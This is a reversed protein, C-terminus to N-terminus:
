QQGINYEEEGYCLYLIPTNGDAADICQGLAVNRIQIKHIWQWQQRTDTPDCEVVSLTQQGQCCKFSHPQDYNSGHWLQLRNGKSCKNMVLRQKDRLELCRENDGGSGGDYRAKKLFYSFHKCHNKHKIEMVNSVDPKDGGHGWYLFESQEEAKAIFEDFWSLAARYRNRMLSGSPLTYKAKTKEDGQLRWMHAVYSDLANMIEGGCLHIRLSQDINEGGWGVMGTDYGGTYEWMNRHMALLGGIMVPVRTDDANYWPFDVNWTLKCCRTTCSCYINSSGPPTRTEIWTNPDLSTVTPVVVTKSNESIYKSIPKTWYIDPKVHCDLFAIIDGTAKWGGVNKANILGTFHEHRIFKLKWLEVEEDTVLTRLPPSSGDDVVIIEHLNPTSEYVSRATKVMFEGENACPLVISYSLYPQISYSSADHKTVVPPLPLFADDDERNQQQQKPLNVDKKFSGERKKVDISLNNSDWLNTISNMSVVHNDEYLLLEIGKVIVLQLMWVLLIRWTWPVRILSSSSSSSSVILGEQLYLFVVILSILFSLLTTSLPWHLLISILPVMFLPICRLVWGLLPRRRLRLRRIISSDNNTAM